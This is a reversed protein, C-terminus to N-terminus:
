IVTSEGRACKPARPSSRSAARRGTSCFASSPRWARARGWWCWLGSPAGQKDVRPRRIHTLHRDRIRCGDCVSRVFECWTHKYTGPLVFEKAPKLFIPVSVASSVSKNGNSDGGGGEPQKLFPAAVVSELWTTCLGKRRVTITTTTTTTAPLPLAYDVISFAM